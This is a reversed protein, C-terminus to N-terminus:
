CGQLCAGQSGAQGGAETLSFAQAEFHPFSTLSAVGLTFPVHIGHGKEAGGFQEGQRKSEVISM